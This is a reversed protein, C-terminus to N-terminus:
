RRTKRRMKLQLRIPVGLFGWAERFGNELYRRYSEPIGDPDNCVLAFAPPREGIQSGYFVKVERGSRQPPQQRAVLAELIRNVEATPIRRGRERAVELIADLVTRIRQGTAASVYLFPVARLFRVREKVEREGRQATKPGKGEVLDWKTVAMIVGRGADWSRRAIKLDQGHLGVSADVVVVCVEARDIARETRLTSYFEIEDEVKSRKRLGATDIFNLTEGHYRLPSDIADRTTGAEPSVLARDQGLLRNVLSSKGVNPRGVVAVHIVENELDLQDQPPLRAVIRDLLDGSGRGTAASVPQPDGLGLAHFEHHATDDAPSDAKNAAVVVRESRARLLEAVELDSPHVGERTDVVFVVVDAESLAITIQQRIGAHIPDDAASSWGGTDVLWFRRGAWDTVAFNRDRTVGPRDDVIAPRGGVIRNFLTSKGVNPRGIIAVTANRM